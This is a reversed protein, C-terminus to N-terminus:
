SSNKVSELSIISRLVLGSIGLNSVIFEKIQDLPSTGCYGEEYTIEISGKDTEVFSTILSYPGRKKDIKEFYLRLEVRKIKFGHELYNGESFLITSQDPPRNIREPNAVDIIKIEDPM